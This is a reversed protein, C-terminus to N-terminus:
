PAERRMSLKLDEVIRDYMRPARARVVRHWVVLDPTNGPNLRLMERKIFPFGKALLALWLDSTPNMPIRRRACWMAREAAAQLAQEHFPPKVETAPTDSIEQMADVLAFYDWVAACRLGAAQLRQTMHLEYFRIAAWKSGVNCVGQWFAVFGPNALAAPGFAVFFTQLHYRHQWSDTMAWVDAQGLDMRAVIDSLPAFPGYLSDNAIVLLEATVREERFAAIGDRYAGFDYGRNRRTLVLACHVSLWDASAEDLMGANTVFIIGFGAECLALLYDRTHPRVVGAVDFHVFICCRRGLPAQGVRRTIVQSAVDGLAKRYSVESSVYHWLRATLASGRRLWVRLRSM